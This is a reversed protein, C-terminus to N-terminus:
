KIILKHNPDPSLRVYEEFLKKVTEIYREHFEEITEGENAFVPNGFVLLLDRHM